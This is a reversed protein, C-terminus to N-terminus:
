VNIELLHELKPLLDLSTNKKLKKKMEELDRKWLGM